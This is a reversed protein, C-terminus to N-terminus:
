KKVALCKNNVCKCTAQNCDLTEPACEMTCRIGDCNPALGASTCSSAHCCLDPACELDQRCEKDAEGLKNDERSFILIGLVILGVVFLAGIVIEKKM